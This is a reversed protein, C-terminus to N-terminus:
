ELRGVDITAIPGRWGQRTMVSARLPTAERVWLGADLATGPMRMWHGGVEVEFHSFEPSLTSLMLKWGDREGDPRRLAVASVTNLAPEFHVRGTARPVATLLPSADLRRSTHLTALDGGAPSGRSLPRTCWDNRQDIHVYEFLPILNQPTLGQKVRGIRRTVLRGARSLSQGEHVLRWASLPVGDLEYVLNFDTDVVFWTNFENSWLEAVAHDWRYGDASVSVLRASWGLATAAHVMLRSVHECWFRGGRQGAEIVAVPDCVHAPGPIPDAGHEFRSGVWAALKLQASYESGRRAGIMSDLQYTDRLKVAHPASSREFVFANGTAGSPLGVIARRALRQQAELDGAHLLQGIHAGAIRVAQMAATDPRVGYSQALAVVGALTAGLVGLLVWGFRRM